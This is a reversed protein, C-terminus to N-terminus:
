IKKSIKKGSFEILSTILKSFSDRIEKKLKEKNKRISTNYYKELLEFLNVSLEDNSLDLLNSQKQYSFDIDYIKEVLSNGQIIKYDLNPLPNIKEFSKEDVILSLWLRLKAIDVASTDIDVGYM